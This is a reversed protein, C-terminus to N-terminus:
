KTMRTHSLAVLLGSAVAGLAIDHAFPSVEEQLFFSYVIMLNTLNFHIKIKKSNNEM